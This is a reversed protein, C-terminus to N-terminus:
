TAYLCLGDEEGEVLRANGSMRAGRAGRLGECGRRHEFGHARVCLARKAQGHAPRRGFRVYLGKGRRECRGDLPQASKARSAPSGDALTLSGDDARDYAVVQNGATNDTQVFVVHDAGEEFIPGRHLGEASAAVPAVRASVGLVAGAGIALRVLRRM